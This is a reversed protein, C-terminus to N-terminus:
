FATEMRSGCNFEPKESPNIQFLHPDLGQPLRDMNVMDLIYLMGIEWCFSNPDVDLCLGM